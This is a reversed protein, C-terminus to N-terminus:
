AIDYADMYLPLSKEQFYATIWLPIYEMTDGVNKTQEEFKSKVYSPFGRGCEGVM